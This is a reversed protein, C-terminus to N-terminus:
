GMRRRGPVMAPQNSPLPDPLPHAPAGYPLHEREYITRLQLGMAELSRSQATQLGSKALSPLSGDLLGAVDRLVQADDGAKYVQVGDTLWSEYVPIDRLVVPIGCALAELVVIGETEEHSLFAFVDCGCYADRLEEREVFGPFCLNEPANDMAERINRPILEPATYGFWFFRVEPLSRALQVFEPLGKRAITHGVSM